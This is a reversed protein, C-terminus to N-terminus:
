AKGTGLREEAAEKDVVRRVGCCRRGHGLEYCRIPAPACTASASPMFIVPRSQNHRCMPLRRLVKEDEVDLIGVVRGNRGTYRNGRLGGGM